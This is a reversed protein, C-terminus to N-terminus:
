LSGRGVIKGGGGGRDKIEIIELNLREQPCQSHTGDNKVHSGPVKKKLVTEKKARERKNSSKQANNKKM